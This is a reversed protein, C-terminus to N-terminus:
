LHSEVRRKVNLYTAEHAERCAISEFNNLRGLFQLDGAKDSM